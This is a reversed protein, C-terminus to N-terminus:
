KVVVKEFFSLIGLDALGLVLAVAVSFVIVIVTYKLTETKTPWIVKTLEARVEKLFNLINM